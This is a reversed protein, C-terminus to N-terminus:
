EGGLHGGSVGRLHSLLQLIGQLLCFFRYRLGGLRQAGRAKGHLGPNDLSFHASPNEINGCLPTGVQNHEPRM